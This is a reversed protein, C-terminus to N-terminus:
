RSLRAVSRSSSVCAKGEVLQRLGEVRDLALDAEDRADAVLDRSEFRDPPRLDEFRVERRQHAGVGDVGHVRREHPLELFPRGASRVEFCGLREEGCESARGERTPAREACAVVQSDVPGLDGAACEGVFPEDV